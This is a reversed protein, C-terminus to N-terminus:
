GIEVIARLEAVVIRLNGNDNLIGYWDVRVHIASRIPCGFERGCKSPLEEAFMKAKELRLIHFSWVLVEFM